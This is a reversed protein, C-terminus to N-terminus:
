QVNDPKILSKLKEIPIPPEERHVMAHCNACLPELDKAINIRYDSGIQSVSTTHHVEIYGTGLIGYFKAFDFGCAACRLGKLQICAERNVKKREYRTTLTQIPRGEAEGEVSSKDEEVGILATVMGFLPVALDIILQRMQGLDSQEIVQPASSARLELREWGSPWSSADLPSADRGNVRFIIRARRSNLASALAVFASSNNIDAHGMQAILPASFKGPIFEVDAIRWGPHFRLTFTDNPHGDAPILELSPETEQNLKVQVTVGIRQRIVDATFQALAENM